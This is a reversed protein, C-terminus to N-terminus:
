ASAQGDGDPFPLEAAFTEALVRSASLEQLRVSQRRKSREAKPPPPIPIIIPQAPRVPTVCAEDPLSDPPTLPSYEASSSPPSSYSAVHPPHLTVTDLEESGVPSSPSSGDNATVLDWGSPSRVRLPIGLDCVGGSVRRRVRMWESRWVVVFVVVVVGLGAVTLLVAPVPSTQMPPPLPTVPTPPTSPKPQIKTSRAAGSSTSTTRTTVPPTVTTTTTRTTVPMMTTTTTTTTTTTATTTKMAATTITPAVPPASFRYLGCQSPLFLLDNAFLSADRIFFERREGATGVGLKREARVEEWRGMGVEETLHYLPSTADSIVFVRGAWVTLDVFTVDVGSWCGAGLSTLLVCSFEEEREPVVSAWPSWCVSSTANCVEEGCREVKWLREM